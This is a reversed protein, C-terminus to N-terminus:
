MRIVSGIGVRALGDKYIRGQMVGGRGQSCSAKQLYWEVRPCRDDAPSLVDKGM